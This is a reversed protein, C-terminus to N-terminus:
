KKYYRNYYHHYYSHGQMRFKNLVVGVLNIDAKAMLKQAHEIMPLVARGSEIIYVIGDALAGVVYADNVIMAPPTDIIVMDYMEKLADIIEKVKQSEVLKGPDPPVPGSPLIALGKVNTQIIAEKLQLGEALVNTVGKNNSIHFYKNITPRRLDFDILIVKKDEMSVNIAFNSATNSKGEFEISSTIVLSKIPRDVSAYRISNRITRYAEVVPSSPELKSTLNMNYLQKSMPITGLLTLSKIHKIDEPSKITNDIYEIFFALALGWFLGLFVGLVYNLPRNPFYAKDPEIAPEVLKIDSITMSEAIQVQTMYELLNQYLEKNISLALDLKSGEAHKVPIKLLEDQYEDIYKQLLKRKALAVERNIYNEVLKKSIQDYIPDISFRKSNFVVKAENKILEKVTEVEKELQRYEPHERSFDISKEAISILFENLKTKLYNVQDSKSFEQSEKRFKEIKELKGKAEDTEKELELITKENDEYNGKLTAIKNILNQTELNLDVTGERIKFDKLKSLSKYYEEKVKQIQGEILVRATKYEERTRELRDNIYLEALKNSMKVAESKNVSYSAIELMDAGKYQDVDLYPQSFVKKILSSKVINDPKIGEGNRDKLNLSSILEDILPRITALAIDTEYDDETATLDGGVSTLGLSSMLSSLTDSTEILLKAKAEYTPTIIYTVIVVVTVFTFFISIIIWKRRLLIEWIKLFEM